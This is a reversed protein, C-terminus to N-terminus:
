FELSNTKKEAITAKLTMMAAKGLRCEGKCFTETINGDLGGSEERQLLFSKKNAPDKCCEEMTKEVDGYIQALFVLDSYKSFVGEEQEVKTRSVMTRILTKKETTKTAANTAAKSLAM